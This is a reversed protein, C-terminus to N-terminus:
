EPQGLLRDLPAMLRCEAGDPHLTLKATGGLTFPVAREIIESGFGAVKSRPEISVGRERWGFTFREPANHPETRWTVEITGGTALAGYKAANTCLEHLMM